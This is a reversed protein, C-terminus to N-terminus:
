QRERPRYERQKERGRNIERDFLDGEALSANWCGLLAFGARGERTPIECPKPKLVATSRIASVRLSVRPGSIRYKVKTAEPSLLAVADAILTHDCIFVPRAQVHILILASRSLPPFPNAANFIRNLNGPRRNASTGQKEKRKKKRNFMRRERSIYNFSVKYLRSYFINIEEGIKCNKEYRCYESVGVRVDRTRYLSTILYIRM